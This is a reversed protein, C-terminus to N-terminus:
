SLYGTERLLELTAPLEAGFTSLDVDPGELSELPPLGQWAPDSPHPTVCLEVPGVAAASAEQLTHLLMRRALRAATEAGLAPILRTKALGAVPAKAFIVIRTTTM